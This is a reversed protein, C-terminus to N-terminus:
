PGVGAAEDSPARAEQREAVLRGLLETERALRATRMGIVVVYLMVVFWIVAYAAVVYQSGGDV